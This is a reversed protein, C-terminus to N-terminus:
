FILLSNEIKKISFDIVVEIKERKGEYKEHHMHVQFQFRNRSIGMTLPRLFHIIQYHAYNIKILILFKERILTQVQSHRPIIKEFKRM